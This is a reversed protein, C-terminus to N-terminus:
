TIIQNILNKYKIKNLRTVQLFIFGRRKHSKLGRYMFVSKTTKKRNKSAAFQWTLGRRENREQTMLNCMRQCAKGIRVEVEHGHKM